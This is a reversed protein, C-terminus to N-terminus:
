ETSEGTSSHAISPEHSLTYAHDDARYVPFPQFCDHGVAVLLL